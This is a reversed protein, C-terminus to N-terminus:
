FRRRGGPQSVCMDGEVLRQAAGSLGEPKWGGRRSGSHENARMFTVEKGQWRGEAGALALVLEDAPAVSRRGAGGGGDGGDGHGHDRSKGSRKTNGRWEATIGVSQGAALKRDDGEEWLPEGDGGYVVFKFAADSALEVSGTWVDGDNWHLEPAAAPNWAGLEPSSGVVRLHEGFAVKRKISFTVLAASVPLTARGPAAHRPVDAGLGRRLLRLSGSRPARRASAGLRGASSEM